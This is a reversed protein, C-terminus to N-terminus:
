LVVQMPAPVFRFGDGHKALQGLGPWPMHFVSLPIRQAALMDFLKVRSAAGQKSDTDFNVEIRPHEFLVVHHAVDGINCITKGGSTIMYVTHGITHGPTLMAQVGPLFEQGDKIFVMRDRYPPLNKRATLASGEAPTGLRKDDMWFEFDAQNLYVQANPFVRSGDDAVMGGSHDIHPHTLVVADIDKPDIGAQKLSTVLRGTQTNPRKVSAMGTDFLVLQDGTNIVLINQDLVVNDTPMFHEAFLKNLEPETPGRFTRTAPGISLPGDSVITAEISGHKFRYFSPAQTGLMPAKARAPTVGLVGAAATASAGALLHRRSLHMDSMTDEWKNQDDDTTPM